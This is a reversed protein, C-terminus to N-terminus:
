QSENQPAQDANEFLEPLISNISHVGHGMEVFMRMIEWLTQLLENEQNETLNLAAIDSRYTDFDCKM